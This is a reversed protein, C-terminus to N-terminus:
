SSVSSSLRFSSPKLKWCIRCRCFALKCSSSSARSACKTANSADKRSATRTSFPKLSFLPLPSLIPSKLSWNSCLHADYQLPYGIVHSLPLLVTSGEAAKM